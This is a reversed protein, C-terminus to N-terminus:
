DVDDTRDTAAPTLPRSLMWAIWLSLAFAPVGLIANLVGLEAVRDALYLPVKVALRIAFLAILPITAFSYARLRAPDRRWDVGEGRLFGFLLGAAPWKLALSVLLLILYGANIFLGPLFFDKAAGTKGSWLACLVIGLLGSIAQAPGQKQALRVMTFVGGLVVAAIIAPQLQRTVTYVLTFVLGPLVTEIIGRVGGVSALPSLTGNEGKASFKALTEDLPNLQEPTAKDSVM